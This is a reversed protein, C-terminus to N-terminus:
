FSGLTCQLWLLPPFPFHLHLETWLSLLLFSTKGSKEWLQFLEQSSPFVPRSWISSVIVFLNFRNDAKYVLISYTIQASSTFSSFNVLFKVLLKVETNRVQRLSNYSTYSGDIWIHVRPYVPQVTLVTLFGYQFFKM